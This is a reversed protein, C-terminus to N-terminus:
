RVIPGETDPTETAIDSQIDPKPLEGNYGETLAGYYYEARSQYPKPM